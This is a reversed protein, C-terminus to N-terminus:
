KFTGIRMQSAWEYPRKVDDGISNMMPGIKRIIMSTDGFMGYNMNMVSSATMTIANGYPYGQVM